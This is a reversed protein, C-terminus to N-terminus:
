EDDGYWFLYESWILKVNYVFRAGARWVAFWVGCAAGYIAQWAHFPILILTVATATLIRRWLKM